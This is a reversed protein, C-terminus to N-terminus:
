ALLNEVGPKGADLIAVIVDKDIARRRETNKGTFANTADSLTSMGTEASNRGADAIVSSRLGDVPDLPLDVGRKIDFPYQDREEVGSVVKSALHFLGDAVM